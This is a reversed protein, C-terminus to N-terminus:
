LDKTNDLRELKEQYLKKGLQCIYEYLDDTVDYNYKRYAQIVNFDHYDFEITVYSKDKQKRLFVVISIHNVVNEYYKMTYVCNSQERGEILFDKINKPIIIYYGNDFRDIWALNEVERKYLINYKKEYVTIREKLLIDHRRRYDKSFFDNVTVDQEDSLLTIYDLYITNHFEDLKRAFNVMKDYLKSIDLNKKEFITVLVDYINLRNRIPKMMLEIKKNVELEYLGCAKIVPLSNLLKNQGAFDIQKNTFQDLYPILDIRRNKLESIEDFCQHKFLIEVKNNYLAPFLLDVYKKLEFEQTKDIHENLYLCDCKRVLQNLETKALRDNLIWQVKPYSRTNIKEFVLVKDNIYLCRHTESTVSNSVFVDKGERRRYEDKRCLVQLVYNDLYKVLYGSCFKNISHGKSHYKFKPNFMNQLEKINKDCEFFIKKILAAEYVDFQKVNVHAIEFDETKKLFNINLRNKPVPKIKKDIIEAKQIYEEKIDSDYYELLGNDIATIQFKSLREEFQVCIYKDDFSVVTGVEGKKNIVKEGVIVPRSATNLKEILM